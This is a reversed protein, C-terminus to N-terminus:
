KKHCSNCCYYCGDVNSYTKKAEALADKCNDFYGLYKRNEVNPLYSCDGTHVEHEGGSQAQTNVYYSKKM